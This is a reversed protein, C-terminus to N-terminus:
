LRIGSNMRFILYSGVFSLPCRAASLLGERWLCLRGAAGAECAGDCARVSM